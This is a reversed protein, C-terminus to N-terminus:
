VPQINWINRSADFKAVLNHNINVVFIEHTNVNENLIQIFAIDCGDYPSFKIEFGDSTM